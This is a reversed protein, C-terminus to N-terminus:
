TVPFQDRVQVAATLGLIFVQFLCTAGFEGEATFTLM